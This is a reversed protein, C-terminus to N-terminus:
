VTAIRTSYKRTKKRCMRAVEQLFVSLNRPCGISIVHSINPNDVGLTHTKEM